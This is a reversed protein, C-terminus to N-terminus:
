TVILDQIQLETGKIITLPQHGCHPCPSQIYDIRVRVDCPACYGSGSIQNLRIVAGELLTGEAIHTLAFELAVPEVGALDGVALTLSKVKLFRKCISSSEVIRLIEEALSIEHM